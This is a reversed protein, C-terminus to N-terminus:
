LIGVWSMVFVVVGLGLIGLDPLVRGLGRGKGDNLRAVIGGGQGAACLLAAFTRMKGFLLMTGLTTDAVPIMWTYENDPARDMQYRYFARTYRGHTFRSFAGYYLISILLTLPILSLM